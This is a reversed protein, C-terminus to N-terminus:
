ENITTQVFNSLLNLSNTLENIADQANLIQTQQNFIAEGYNPNIVGLASISANINAQIQNDLSINGAKVLDHLSKGTNFYKCFYVNQVGKINNTFDTTANHAYQSEVLESDHAILPAQMKNNAVEDCIHAMAYVIEIFAAKRTAFRTSGNGATMLETAFNNPVNVNWSQVLQDLLNSLSQTLSTLYKLERATLNAATRSGGVGFLVYEIPHHGRLTYQLSDINELELPNSSTLLSDLEVTNVPWSDTAPDYNFDSVPGILFGEAQEWTMRISRWADRATQLNTETTSDRLNISAQNLVVAKAQLDTYNPIALTNTFDILVEEPTVPTAPPTDDEDKKCGIVSLIVSLFVLLSKKYNM